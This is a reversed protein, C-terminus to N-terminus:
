PCGTADIDPDFYCTASTELGLGCDASTDLDFYCTASVELCFPRVSFIDFIEHESIAVDSIAEFGLM